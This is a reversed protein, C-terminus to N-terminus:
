KNGEEIQAVLEKALRLGQLMGYSVGRERLLEAASLTDEGATKSESEVVQKLAAEIGIDIAANVADRLSKYLM